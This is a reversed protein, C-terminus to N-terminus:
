PENVTEWDVEPENKWSDAVCNSRDTMRRPGDRFRPVPVSLVSVLVSLTHNSPSLLLQFNTAGSWAMDSGRGVHLPFAKYFLYKTAPTSSSSDEKGCFRNSSPRNLYGSMFKGSCQEDWAM